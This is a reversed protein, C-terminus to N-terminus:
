EATGILRQYTREMGAKIEEPSPLEFEVEQEEFEESDDSGFELPTGNIQEEEEAEEEAAERLEEITRVVDDASLAPLMPMVVALVGNEELAVAEALAVAHDREYPGCIFSDWEDGGSPEFTVAWPFENVESEDDPEYVIVGGM